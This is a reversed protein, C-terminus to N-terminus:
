RKKQPLKGPMPENPFGLREWFGLGPCVGVVGAVFLAVAPIYLVFSAQSLGTLGIGLWILLSVAIFQIRIATM